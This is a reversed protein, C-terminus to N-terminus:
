REFWPTILGGFFGANPWREAAEVYAALWGEDVLVDGDTFLLLDAAAEAIARNRAPSAGQEAELLRRVPLRGSYKEIVARTDDTSNNDVVLLEWTLGDPIRLKCFQALTSDLLRARNWTCIAVTVDM